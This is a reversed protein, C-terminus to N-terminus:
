FDWEEDLDYAVPKTNEQSFQNHEKLYANNRRLLQNMKIPYVIWYMADEFNFNMRHIDEVGKKESKALDNPVIGKTKYNPDSCMKRLLKRQYEAQGEMVRNVNKEKKAEKSLGPSALYVKKFVDTDFPPEKVIDEITYDKIAIDAAPRLLYNEVAMEKIEIVESIKSTSIETAEKRISGWAAERQEKTVLNKTYKTVADMNGTIFTCFSSKMCIDGEADPFLLQLIRDSLHFINDMQWSEVEVTSNNTLLIIKNVSCQYGLITRTENTKIIEKLDETEKSPQREPISYGEKTNDSYVYMKGDAYIVHIGICKQYNHVIDGKIYTILTDRGPTVHDATKLVEDSYSTLIKQVIIGEFPKDQAQVFFTVFLAVLFLTHKKM